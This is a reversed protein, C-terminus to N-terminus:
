SPGGNRLTHQSSHGCGRAMKCSRSSRRRWNQLSAPPGGHLLMVRLMAPIEVTDEDASIYDGDITVYKGDNKLHYESKLKAQLGHGRQVTWVTDGENNTDTIQAGGYELLWQVVAPQRYGGALLLATNGRTDTETISAGGESSLLYQILKLSGDGAVADLVATSGESDRDTIRAGHELLFKVTPLDGNVCAWHFATM